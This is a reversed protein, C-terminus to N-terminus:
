CMLCNGKQWIKLMNYKESFLSKLGYQEYCHTPTPMHMCM